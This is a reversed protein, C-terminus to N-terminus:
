GLVVFAWLEFPSQRLYEGAFVGERMAAKDIKITERDAFHKRHMNTNWYGSSGREGDM